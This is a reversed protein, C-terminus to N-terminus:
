VVALAAVYNPEQAIEPVQETYIVKNATDLIVIARSCLGKLPGDVIRVGYDDPFNSRWSSLTEANEVGESGCFRQAAFPLDESINLVSVGAKEAARQHFAKVSLACVPTDISPYINLIKKSGAYDALSASSLDQRLLQFDPVAAGVAPLEGITHIPNEKLTITAM